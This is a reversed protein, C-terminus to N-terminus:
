QLFADHASFLKDTNNDTYFFTRSTMIFSRYLSLILPNDYQIV